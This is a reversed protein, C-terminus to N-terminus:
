QGEPYTLFNNGEPAIFVSMVRLSTIYSIDIAYKWVLRKYSTMECWRLSCITCINCCNSSQDFVFHKKDCQIVKGIGAINMQTDYMRAVNNIIRAASIIPNLNFNCSQTTDNTHSMIPECLQYCPGNKALAGAIERRKALIFHWKAVPKFLLSIKTKMGISSLYFM